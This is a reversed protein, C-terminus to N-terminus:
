TCGSGSASGTSITVFPAATDVIGTEYAVFFQANDRSTEEKSRPGIAGVESTWCEGRSASSSSTCCSVRSVTVLSAATEVIGTKLAILGQANDRSTEENSWPGIAGIESTWCTGSFGGRSGITCKHKCVLSAEIIRDVAIGKVANECAIGAVTGLDGSACGAAANGKHADKEAIIGFDLRRYAVVHGHGHITGGEISVRAQIQETTSRASIEFTTDALADTGYPSASANVCGFFALRDIGTVLGLHHPIMVPREADTSLAVIAVILRRFFAFGDFDM